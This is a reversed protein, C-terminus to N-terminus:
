SEGGECDPCSRGYPYPDGDRHWHAVSAEFLRAAEAHGAAEMVEITLQDFARHRAHGVFTAAIIRCRRAFEAPTMAM